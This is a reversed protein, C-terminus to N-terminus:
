NGMNVKCHKAGSLAQTTSYRLPYCFRTRSLPEISRRDFYSYINGTPAFMCPDMTSNAKKNINTTKMEDTLKDDEDQLNNMVLEESLKTCGIDDYIDGTKHSDDIGSVDNVFQDNSSFPFTPM